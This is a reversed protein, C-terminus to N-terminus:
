KLGDKIASILGGIRVQTKVAFKQLASKGSLHNELERRAVTRALHRLGSLPRFWVKMKIIKGTEDLEFRDIGQLTFKGVETEFEFLVENGKVWTDTVRYNEFLEFVLKLTESVIKKGHKPKFVAPSYFEIDDHILALMLSSDNTEFIQHWKEIFNQTNEMPKSIVCGVKKLWQIKAM